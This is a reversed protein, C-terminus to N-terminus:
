PCRSSTPQLRRPMAMKGDGIGEKCRQAGRKLPAPWTAGEQPPRRLMTGPWCIDGKDSTDGKGLAGGRAAGGAEPSEQPSTVPQRGRQRCDANEWSRNVGPRRFTRKAVARPVTAKARAAWWSFLRRRLFFCTPGSIPPSCRPVTGRGMRMALFTGDMFFPLHSATPFPGLQPGRNATLNRALTVNGGWTSLLVEKGRHSFVHTWYTATTRMIHPGKPLM